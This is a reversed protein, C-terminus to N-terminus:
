MCVNLKGSQGMFHSISLDTLSLPSIFFFVPLFSYSSNQQPVLLFDDQYFWFCQQKKARLGVMHSSLLMYTIVGISWIDAKSTYQGRIVEPAM